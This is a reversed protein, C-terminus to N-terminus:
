PAVRGLAVPTEAELEAAIRRLLKRIRSHWAHVSAASMGTRACVEAVSDQHIVLQQFLSLGLPTMEARAADLVATLSERGLVSAEPSADDAPQRDIIEDTTPDETWPSRKRNRLTALVRQEAVLGVFGRISLGRAPDWARLLRGDDRFLEVFVDQTFDDVRQRADGRNALALRRLLARGVRAQVVPTLERVLASTAAREGGLARRVLSETLVDASPTLAPRPGYCPEARAGLARGEVRARAPNAGTRRQSPAHPLIM